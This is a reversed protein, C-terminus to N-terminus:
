NLAAIRGGSLSGWFSKIAKPPCGLLRRRSRGLQSLLTFRNALDIWTAGALNADARSIGLSPNFWYFEVRVRYAPAKGLNWAHASSPDELGPGVWHIKLRV